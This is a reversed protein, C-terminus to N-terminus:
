KIMQLISTIICDRSKSYILHSSALLPKIMTGPVKQTSLLLNSVENDDDEGDGDMSLGTERHERQHSGPFNM